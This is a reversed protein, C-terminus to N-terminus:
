GRGDRRRIEEAKLIGEVTLDVAQSDYNLLGQTELYNAIKEGLKPAIGLEASLAEVHLRAAYGGERSKDYAMGLFRDLTVRIDGDSPVGVNAQEIAPKAAAAAKRARVARKAPKRRSAAM